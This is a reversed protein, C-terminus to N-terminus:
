VGDEPCDTAPAPGPEKANEDPPEKAAMAALMDRFRGGFVVALPQTSRLERLVGTTFDIVWSRIAGTDGDVEALDVDEDGLHMEVEVTTYNDGDAPYTGRIRLFPPRYPGDAEEPETTPPLVETTTM